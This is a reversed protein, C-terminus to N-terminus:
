SEWYSNIGIDKSIGSCMKQAERIFLATLGFHNLYVSSKFDLLYFNLDKKKVNAPYTVPHDVCGSEVQKQM